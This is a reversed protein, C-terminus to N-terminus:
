LIEKLKFDMYDASVLHLETNAVALPINKFSQQDHLHGFICHNVGYTHLLETFGSTENLENCPPYHLLLIKVVNISSDRDTITNESNTTSNESAGNSNENNPASINVHTLSKKITDDMEKLAAETRMLERDYITRDTDEQFNPDNPCLYGRTGGFALLTSKNQWLALGHGQLFTFAGTTSTNMKKVSSWWYDHNGRIMYKQGPLTSIEQLDALAQELRLAWSIDGVIFVIDEPTVRDSWDKKIRNWHDTWHSGFIDMPKTPPNGSLHLEGIAFVKM